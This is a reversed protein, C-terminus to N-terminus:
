LAGRIRGVKTEVKQAEGEAVKDGRRVHLGVFPKRRFVDLDPRELAKRVDEQLWPTLNKWLLRSM